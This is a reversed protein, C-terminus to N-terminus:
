HRILPMFVGSRNLQVATSVNWVQGSSLGSVRATIEAEGPPHGPDGTALFSLSVAQGWPATVIWTLTRNVEDFVPPPNPGGPSVPLYLLGEPLTIMAEVVEATVGINQFSLNVPVPNQAIWRSATYLRPAPYLLIDPKLHIPIELVGPAAPPGVLLVGELELPADEPYYLQYGIEIQVPVGARLPGIPAHRLNLSDGQVTRIAIDFTQTEGPVDYGQVIVWYIGDQPYYLKIKEDSDDGISYTHVKDKSCSLKGDGNDELLYLDIDLDPVSSTTTVELIGGRNIELGKGDPSYIWTSTCLDFSGEDIPQDKFEEVANMGYVQMSLGDEIDATSTISVQQTGAFYPEEVGDPRAVIQIDSPSSSIEYVQGSIAEAFQQGGSLVQHLAIMGLGEQIPASVVERSTGTATQWLFKGGSILTDRSGGIQRLGQTGFHAPDAQAYSDEASGFIWSDIDTGPSNWYTDVIMARGASPVGEPLDVDYYFHRWDGSEYRWRWNFGGFLHNNDYLDARDPMGGLTFTPANVAVLAIVPVVTKSGDIDVRISGQYTGPPTGPPVSLQATFIGEPQSIVKGAEADTHIWSWPVERYFTVRVQLTTSHGCFTCDLGLFVRHGEQTGKELGRKGLSAEIYSSTPYGFTFRNHEYLGTDPDIDIEEEDVRGNRNKDVWLRQNDNRDSWDYFYVSWANDPYYDGDVDFTSFPLVVQARILDPQHDTILTSLDELYIPLEKSAKPPPTVFSYSFVEDHVQQYMSGQATVTVDQGTPNAITFVQEDTEGASILSPFFDYRTGRYDGVAWQVPSILPTEASAAATARGAQFNGAGQTLVDYGLDQATGQLLARAERWSPWRDHEELFAEYVLALGGAVVPTSMSTGGFVDYAAQGNGFYINLPNAGPGWAGVATIDPAIDGLAGPGRNSWPQVEGYVFQDPRVIEFVEVSGYATSAGVDMISGGGPSTTTTYGHGGNGTAVLFSVSQAESESFQQAFRSLVDWGDEITRSDGWSNSVIQAEDGSGAVGDFGLVALTWADFPLAFGNEFAAIKSAPAISQIVAGGVGGVQLGGAYLPNIPGAGFPDTIQGQGAIQSACNTGHGHIDNIFALLRGSGPVSYNSVEPYLMEVGPPQNVGDSIWALMGGSLDWVGDGFLDVGAVPQERTMKEGPDGLHQNYNIDLYVTDYVGAQGEDSVIVPSQSLYADPYGMGMYYVSMPLVYDPHLSYYYHQSKSTNPWTFREFLPSDNDPGLRLDASCWQGDCVPSEVPLTHVYQTSGLMDLVTDPSLTYEPDLAYFAGSYTDYAFPWGVYPGTSITAQTGKLDPHAFDVGTDVVAVVIGEGSYGQARAANVDHIDLITPGTAGSAQGGAADTPAQQQEENWELPQELAPPPGVELWQLTEEVSPRPYKRRLEDLGPAEVTEYTKTSIIGTVGDVSALKTLSSVQLEGTVWQVGNVPRSRTLRTFHREVDTGPVLLATVMVSEEESVAAASLSAPATTDQILQRLDPSLKELGVATTVNKEPPPESTGGRASFAPNAPLSVFGFLLFVSLCVQWFSRVSM